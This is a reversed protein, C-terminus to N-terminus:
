RIQETTCSLYAIAQRARLKGEDLDSSVSSVLKSFPATRARVDGGYKAVAERAFSTQYIVYGSSTRKMKIGVLLLEPGDERVYRRGSATM